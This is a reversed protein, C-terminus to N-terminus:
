SFKRKREDEDDKLSRDILYNGVSGANRDVLQNGTPNQGVYGSWWGKLANRFVDRGDGGRVLTQLTNNVAGTTGPSWGYNSGVSKVGGGIAGTAGGVLGQKVLSDVDGDQLMGTGTAMGYGKLGGAAVSSTPAYYAGAALGLISAIGRIDGYTESRSSGWVPAIILNGNEDTDVFFSTNGGGKASWGILNGEGRLAGRDKGWEGSSKKEISDDRNIDGLFSIPNGNYTLDYAVGTKGGQVMQRGSETEEFVPDLKYERKKVQLKNLDTIGNAELLRALDAAQDQDAAKWDGYRGWKQLIQDRLGAM